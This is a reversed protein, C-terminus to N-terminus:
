YLRAHLHFVWKCDHTPFPVNSSLYPVAVFDLDLDVDHVDFYAVVAAAAV